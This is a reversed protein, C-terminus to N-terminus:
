TVLSNEFVIRATLTAGFRNKHMTIFYSIVQITHQITFASPVIGSITTAIKRTITKLKLAFKSIDEAILYVYNM